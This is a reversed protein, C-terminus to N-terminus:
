IIEKPFYKKVLKEDCGTYACEGTRPSNVLPVVIDEGIEEVCEHKDMCEECLFELCNRCIMNAIKGCEVCKYEPEINRFLVIIMKDKVSEIKDIIKLKIHTTTGFDYEYELVDGVAFSSLKINMPVESKKYLFHSLHGCCEVWIDRIFNDIIELPSSELIKIVIWYESNYFGELLIISYKDLKKVDNSIKEKEQCERIHKLIFDKRKKIIEKCYSCRGKLEKKPM